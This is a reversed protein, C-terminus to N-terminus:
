LLFYLLLPLATSNGVYPHLHALMEM